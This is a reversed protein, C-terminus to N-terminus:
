HASVVSASRCPESAGWKTRGRQRPRFAGSQPWLERIGLPEVDAPGGAGPGFVVLRSSPNKEGLIQEFASLPLRVRLENGGLGFLCRGGSEDPPRRAFPERPK